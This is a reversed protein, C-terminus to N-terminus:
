SGTPFATSFRFQCTRKAIKKLPQNLSNGSRRVTCFIEEREVIEKGSVTLQLLYWQQKGKCLWVELGRSARPTPLGQVCHSGTGVMGFSKLTPSLVSTFFSWRDSHLGGLMGVESLLLTCSGWPCSCSPPWYHSGSLRSLLNRERPGSSIRLISSNNLSHAPCLFQGM